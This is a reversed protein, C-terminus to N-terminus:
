ATGSIPCSEFFIAFSLRKPPQQGRQGNRKEQCILRASHVSQTLVVVRFRDGHM